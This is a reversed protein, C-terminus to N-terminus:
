MMQIERNDPARVKGMANTVLTLLPAGLRSFLVTEALKWLRAVAPKRPAM